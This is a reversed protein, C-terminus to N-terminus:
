VDGEVAPPPYRREAVEYVTAHPGIAFVVCVRRLPEVTYVARYGGHSHSVVLSRCAALRGSLRHGREHRDELTMLARAIRSRLGPAALLDQRAHRTLVVAFPDTRM